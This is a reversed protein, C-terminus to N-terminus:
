KNEEPSATAARAATPPSATQGHMSENLLLFWKLQGCWWAAEATLPSEGSANMAEEYAAVAAMYDGTKRACHGILLRAWAATDPSPNSKLIREYVTRARDYEGLNYLANAFDEEAGPCPEAPIAAIREQRSPRKAEKEPERAPAPLPEAAVARLKEQLMKLRETEEDLQKQLLPVDAAELVGPRAPAENAVQAPEGAAAACTLLLCLLISTSPRTM